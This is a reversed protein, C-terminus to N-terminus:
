RASPTPTWHLVGEPIAPRDFTVSGDPHAAFHESIWAPGATEDWAEGVLDRLTEIAMELSAYHHRWHDRTMVLDPAIDLQRLVNFLDSLRPQRPRSRGTLHEELLEAPHRHQGDRLYVFVHRRAAREMKTVFPVILEVGYMVHSCIVLDAEPVDAAEWSLPIVTVNEIAPIQERMSASPEVATIHALRKSLPVAHRGTGAGVDILTLSPDLFPEVVGLLLDPNDALGFAYSSGSGTGPPRSSAAPRQRARVLEAWHEGWDTDLLADM